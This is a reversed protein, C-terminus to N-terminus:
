SNVIRCCTCSSVHVFLSCSHKKNVLMLLFFIDLITVSTKSM